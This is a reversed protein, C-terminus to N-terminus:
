SKYGNHFLRSKYLNPNLVANSIDSVICARVTRRQSQLNPSVAYKMFRM